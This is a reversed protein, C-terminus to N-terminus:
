KSPLAESTKKVPKLFRSVSEFVEDVSIKQMCVHVDTKNPCTGKYCPHCPVYHVHVRSQPVTPMHRKPDTPGFLAVTPVNLSAAVHLPATDGSVLARLCSTVGVLLQPSTRGTLNLVKGSTFGSCFEDAIEKEGPAGLLVITSGYVQRIREALEVFKAAPWRKTEWQPSSGLVFGVYNKEVASASTELMTWAERKADEDPFLELREDLKKVGLARLIRFQNKVPGEAVSAVSAPRNLLWALPGRKFGYRETAGSLYGLLHTWKSNQFDVSIDYGERRLKKALKLLFPIEALRKRDVPILENLDRCGSILPAHKKDVLVAIKAYPFRARIMRISPTILIVDGMAGLKLILIKKEAAVERYVKFTEDVMKDLTFNEETKRRLNQTMRRCEAPDLLLRQMAQAMAKVDGPPVLLGNEGDDIIDLVGGVRTVVVATGVAGAEVIVRGFAEPVLTGLVLLDAEALLQPIDRRTGLLKVSASLGLQQILSNIKDTYKTKGKGESGVLWVEINPVERRLVHVAKIFEIQGKIPSLRGVNIIKLTKKKADNYKDPVFQFTSLDIGRHVLRIHDPEVGFDDIMHRGVVRSIVIVKKGWGMVRSLFHNSYYGHCTTVMPVNAKRCAFFVLWAPVRSRAHVVDIHEFRIVEALRDILGLSFISKKHVPLEYHKVGLKNLEVVLAGGSSVVVMDEGRAKAARALDIVGREVGGVELSPLIQLTKM